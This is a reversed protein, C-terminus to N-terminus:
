GAQYFNRTAFYEEDFSEANKDARVYSHAYALWEPTNFKKTFYKM